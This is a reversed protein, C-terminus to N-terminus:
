SKNRLQKINELQRLRTEQQESIKRLIELVAEDREKILPVIEKISKTDGTDIMEEANNVAQWFKTVLRYEEDPLFSELELFGIDLANLTAINTPNLIEQSLAERILEKPFPLDSDRGVSFINNELVAGYDSIIRMRENSNM